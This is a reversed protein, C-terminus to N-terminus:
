SGMVRNDIQSKQITIELNSLTWASILSGSCTPSATGRYLWALAHGSPFWPRLRWRQHRKKNTKTKKFTWASTKSVLLTAPAFDALLWSRQRLKVFNIQNLHFTKSHDRSPPIGFSRSSTGLLKKFKASQGRAEHKTSRAGLVSCRAGLM